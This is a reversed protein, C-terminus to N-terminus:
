GRGCRLGWRGQGAVRGPKPNSTLAEGWEPEGAQLTQCPQAPSARSEARGGGEVSHVPREMGETDSVVRQLAPAM